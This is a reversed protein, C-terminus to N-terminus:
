NLTLEGCLFFIKNIRGFYDLPMLQGKLISQSPLEHLGPSARLGSFLSFDTTLEMIQLGTLLIIHLLPTYLSTGHM